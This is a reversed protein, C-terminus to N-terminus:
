RAASMGIAAARSSHPRRARSGDRGSPSELEPRRRDPSMVAAQAAPATPSTARPDRHSRAQHSSTGHPTMPAAPKASTRARQPAVGSRGTGTTAPSRAVWTTTTTRHWARPAKKPISAPKLTVANARSARRRAQFASADTAATSTATASKRTSNFTGVEGRADRREVGSRPRRLWRASTRCPVGRNTGGGPRSPSARRTADDAQLRSM